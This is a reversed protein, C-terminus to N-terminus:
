CAEDSLQRGVMDQRLMEDVYFILQLEAEFRVDMSATNTIGFSRVMELSCAVMGNELKPLCGARGQSLIWNEIQECETAVEVNRSAMRGSDKRLALVFRKECLLGGDAYKKLVPNCPINDLSYASPEGDLFNVNIGVGDFVPCASLYEVINEIVFDVETLSNDTVSLSEM